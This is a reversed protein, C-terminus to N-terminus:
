RRGTNGAARKRKDARLSRTQKPDAILPRYIEIRDGDRARSAPDRVKGWVGLRAAALDFEPCCELIGSARVIEALTAGDKARTHIERTGHAQAYV